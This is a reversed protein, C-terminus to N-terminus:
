TLSMGGRTRGSASTARSQVASCEFKQVSVSCKRYRVRISQRQRSECDLIEFSSIIDCSPLAERMRLLSGLRRFTHLGCFVHVARTIHRVHLPRMVGM